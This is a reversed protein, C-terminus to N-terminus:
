ESRLSEVPNAVAAKIAHFSVTVLAIVIALIGATIFVWWQIHIRYAFNGLWQHMAWWAVPAAVIIAMMVLQIFDKSVLLTISSASAGLIKRIGIEKTRQVTTYAALALLGLCALVIALTSFISFVQATRQESIYLHNYTEDLFHYEFPRYPAWSNWTQQLFKLTAPIDSGKVRVFMENVFSPDLFIVLPGVPQHLSAFNFDKVVGKVIGPMGKKVTKGIAEDPTWGLKRVATENLIFSYQFNKGNDSTDMKMIDAPTFLSGAVLQMKMTPIFGLDVPLANVNLNISGSRTQASIGDGWQINAPSEYAGTVAVVGRYNGIAKKFADYESRMRYDVPLVVVHDRDYGINKHHIYNLQQLIILTSIILFVSVAFQFVILSKRLVGGSSTLRFGSRLINTLGTQTLMMAPYSGSIFTIFLCLGILATIFLPSAISGPSLTRDTLRGFVPLLIIALFIAIIFSIVTLLFSEGIFQSFLQKRGAGFVKRIGVEMGRGASQATALNTYNICAILLILLAIIGLIYVTAISGPPEMGDGAKSYLHVRTLPELHYTLFDTGTLGLSNKSVNQMYATIEKQLPSTQDAHHLMLYTYYNANFWTLKKAMGTLSSFSAIFDFKIQSAAPADAVIGTIIYNNSPDPETGLHLIKGIPDEDGFYKTAMEPTIVIDNPASLVTAPNGRLLHFSFINFFTSDAFLIKKENFMQDRYRVVGRKPYIRVYSEVQPFTLRFQPGVKTGTVSTNTTSIANGYEMNVRVIRDANKNFRDYSLENNIFLGILICSTIGVTLGIINVITYM